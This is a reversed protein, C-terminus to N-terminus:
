TLRRAEFLQICDKVGLEVAAEIIFQQCDLKTSWVSKQVLEFEYQRLITRFKQRKWSDHEPIDFVLLLQAGQLHEAIFPGLAQQGRQTITPAGHDSEQIYGKSVARKYSQQVTQLRLDDRRALEAFFSAPRFSLRSNAESYPILAM